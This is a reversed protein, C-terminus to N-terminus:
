VITKVCYENLDRCGILIFKLKLNIKYNFVSLHM